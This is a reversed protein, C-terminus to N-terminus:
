VQIIANTHRIKPRAIILTLNQCETLVIMLTRRVEMLTEFILTMLKIYIPIFHKNLMSKEWKNDTVQSFYSHRLYVYFKEQSGKKIVLAVPPIDLSLRRTAVATINVRTRSAYELPMM